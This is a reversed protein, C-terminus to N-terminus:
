IAVGLLWGISASVLMALTGWFVVRTSGLILSSGGVRAAIIGLLALFFVAGVAISIVLYTKSVIFITLLPLIAGAIWGAVGAILITQYSSNAAAVGILLSAMSIIGDNAGLVAARLWGIRNIRHTESHLTKM